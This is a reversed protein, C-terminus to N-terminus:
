NYADVEAIGWYYSSVQTSVFRFYRVDTDNYFRAYKYDPNTVSTEKSPERIEIIGHSDWELNDASSFLEVKDANYFPSFGKYNPTIRFGKLKVTEGMDFTLSTGTNTGFWSTEVKGDIMNAAGYSSTYTNSATATWKSRDMVTGGPEIGTEITIITSTIIIYVASLNTSIELGKDKSLVEKIAIPILYGEKATLETPDSLEVRIQETSILEGQKISVTPTLLTVLDETLVKYTTGRAQNYSDALDNNLAFTIEADAPLERTARVPFEVVSEGTTVNPTHTLNMEFHNQLGTSVYIKLEKSNLDDDSCAITGAALAVLLVARIISKLNIHKM